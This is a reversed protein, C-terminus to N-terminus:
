FYEDSEASLWESDLYGLQPRNGHRGKRRGKSRIYRERDGVSGVDNSIRKRANIKEGHLMNSQPQHEELQEIRCALNHIIDNQQKGWHLVKGVVDKLKRNEELLQELLARDSLSNTNAATSVQPLGVQSGKACCKPELSTLGAPIMWGDSPDVTGADTARDMLNTCAFPDDGDNGLADLEPTEAENTLREAENTLREAEDGRGVDHSQDHNDMLETKESSDVLASELTLESIIDKSPATIVLDDIGSEQHDGEVDMPPVTEASDAEVEVEELGRAPAKTLAENEVDMPIEAAAQTPGLESGGQQADKAMSEDITDSLSRGQDQCHAVVSTAVADNTDHPAHQESTLIETGKIDDSDQERENSEEAPTFDQEMVEQHGEAINSGDAEDQRTEEMAEEAISGDVEAKTEEMGEKHRDAAVSGGAEAHTTEEMAEQQGHTAVTGDAGIQTIEEMAEQQGETASTDGAETQTAEEVDAGEVNSMNVEVEMEAAEAAPIDMDGDAVEAGDEEVDCVESREEAIAVDDVNAESASLSDLKEQFVILEKALAKRILRVEPHVGQLQDLRLLLAM